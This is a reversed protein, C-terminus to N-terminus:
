RPSPGNTTRGVNRGSSDYLTTTDGNKSARGSVRGTSDYFTTTGQSDTSATGLSKGAADYFRQSQASADSAFLALFLVALVKTSNM